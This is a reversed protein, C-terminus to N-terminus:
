TDRRYLVTNSGCAIWRIIPIREVMPEAVKLIRAARAPCFYPVLGVVKQDAVHYGMHYFWKNLTTPLFSREGHERHYASCKEILKMVPNAGNPELVLISPCARCVAGIARKPDDLHHLVGRIVAVDCNLRTTDASYISGVRFDMNPWNQRAVRVAKEAPDFGVVTAARSRRALEASFTGDGCGVDLLRFGPAFHVSLMRLIELTQRETAVGSSYPANRTYRYGGNEAVDRDFPQSESNAM